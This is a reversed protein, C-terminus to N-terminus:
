LRARFLLYDGVNPRSYGREIIRPSKDVLEFPAMWAEYRDASRGFTFYRTHDNPDGDIYTEDSEECLLVHGGVRIIRRIEALTAAAAQHTMHQLVTFVLAFDFEGDTAPLEELSVVDRFEVEPQLFRGKGALDKDREFAVVHDCFENLVLCMRGYGAGVDCVQHLPERRAIQELYRRVGAQETYTRVTFEPGEVDVIEDVTWRHLHGGPESM